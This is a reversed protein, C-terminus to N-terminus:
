WVTEDEVGRKAAQREIHEDCYMLKDCHCTHCRTRGCDLHSHKRSRGIRRSSLPDSKENVLLYYQKTRSVVISSTRSRREARTKTM